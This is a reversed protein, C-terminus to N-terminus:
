WVKMFWQVHCSENPEYFLWMKICWQILCSEKPIYVIIMNEYAMTCPLKRNLVLNNCKWVDYHM